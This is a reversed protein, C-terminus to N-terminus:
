DGKTKSSKRQNSFLLLKFPNPVYLPTTQMYEKYKPYKPITLRETFWGSGQFLLCLLIWGVASWNMWIAKSRFSPEFCSISFLYLSIWISQEAAYNPKRVFSFLGSQSFGDGYEGVLLEDASAEGAEVLRRRRYKEEQFNYQHNDAISEIIVFGLVLCSAVLDLWNLGKSHISQCEPRTSAIYAVASPAVILMLLVNQYLAVFGFNFLRWAVTNKFIPLLYGDQIYKWRYDEDGTWPPWQYGGRRSFNYTLRGGWVSLLLAMLFTRDDNGAVLIWAYVDPVISWLKDVQSFNQTLESVVWVLVVVFGCVLCCQQIPTTIGGESQPSFFENVTLDWVNCTSTPSTM